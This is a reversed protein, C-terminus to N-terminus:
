HTRIRLDLWLQDEDSSSGSYVLERNRSSAAEASHGEAVLMEVTVDNISIGYQTAVAEVTSANFALYNWADKGIYLPSDIFEGNLLSGSGGIGAGSDAPYAGTTSWELYNLESGSPVFVLYQHDAFPNWEHLIGKSEIYIPM